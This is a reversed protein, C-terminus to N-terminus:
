RRCECCQCEVSTCNVSLLMLSANKPPANSTANTRRRECLQSPISGSFFNHDLRIAQIRPWQLMADSPVTGSLKNQQVMFYELSSLNAISSPLTGLFANGSLDLVQLGHLVNGFEPDDFKQSELQCNSVNLLELNPFKMVTKGFDFFNFRNGSFDLYKLRKAFSFYEPTVKGTMNNNPWVLGNVFGQPDCVIGFWDCVDIAQDWGTSNVWDKSSSSSFFITMLVFYDIMHEDLPLYRRSGDKTIKTYAAITPSLGSPNDFGKGQDALYLRLFNFFQQDTWNTIGYPDEFATDNGNITGNDSSSNTGTSAPRTGLVVGVVIAVLVVGLLALMGYWRARSGHSSVDGAAASAVDKRVISSRRRVQAQVAEALIRKRIEEELDDRSVAYATVTPALAPPNQASATLAAMPDDRPQQAAASSSALSTAPTLSSAVTTDDLAVVMRRPTVDDAGDLNRLSSGGAYIVGPLSRSSSHHQGMRTASSAKRLEKSGRDFTSPEVVTPMSPGMEDDSAMRKKRSSTPSVAATASPLAHQQKGLSCDNLSDQQLFQLPNMEETKEEHSLWDIEEVTPLSAASNGGGGPFRLAKKDNDNNNHDAAADDFAESSETLDLITASLERVELTHQRALEEADLQRRNRSNSGGASPNDDSPAAPPPTPPPKPSSSSSM